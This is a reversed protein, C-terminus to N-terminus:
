QIIIIFYKKLQTTAINFNNMSLYKKKHKNGVSL